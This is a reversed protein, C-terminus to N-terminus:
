VHKYNADWCIHHECAVLSQNVEMNITWNPCCWLPVTYFCHDSSRHEATLCSSASVDIGGLCCLSFVIQMLLIRDTITWFYESHRPSTIYVQYLMMFIGANTVVSCVIDQVQHETHNRVMTWVKLEIYSWYYQPYKAGPGGFAEQWSDLLILVKDKVQLWAAHINLFHTLSASILILFLFVFIVSGIYKSSGTCAM